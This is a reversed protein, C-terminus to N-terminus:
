KPLEGTHPPETRAAETPLTLTIPRAMQTQHGQALPPRHMYGQRQLDRLALKVLRPTVDTLRALPKLYQVGDEPLYGSTGAYHALVLGVLRADRYLGGSLVAEEWRHRDYPAEPEPAADPALVAAAPPRHAAALDGPTPASRTQM